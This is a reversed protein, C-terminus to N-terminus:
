LLSQKIYQGMRFFFFFDTWHQLNLFDKKKLDM